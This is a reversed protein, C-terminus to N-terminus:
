KVHNLECQSCSFIRKSCTRPLRTVAPLLTNLTSTLSRCKPVRESIGCRAYCHRQRKILNIRESTMRTVVCARFLCVHPSRKPNADRTGVVRGAPRQCRGLSARRRPQSAAHVRLYIGANRLFMGNGDDPSLNKRFLPISNCNSISDCCLLADCTMQM